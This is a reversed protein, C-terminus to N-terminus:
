PFSKISSIIGTPWLLEHRLPKHPPPVVSKVARDNCPDPLPDMGVAEVM